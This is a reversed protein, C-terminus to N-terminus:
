IGKTYTNAVTVSDVTLYLGKSLIENQVLDGIPLGGVLGNLWEQLTKGGM